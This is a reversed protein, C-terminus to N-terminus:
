RSPSASRVEAAVVTLDLRPKFALDRRIGYTWDIGYLPVLPLDALAKRMVRSLLGARVTPDMERAAQEIAADVEQDAYGTTNEAGFGEPGGPGHLLPEFLGSADGTGHTWSALALPARGDVMRHLIEPWGVPEVTLRFGAALLQRAIEEGVQAGRGSVTLSSALGSPFGAEALLHRAAAPDAARPPLDEAFGHVGRVALQWVPRGEGQLGAEVLRERDLALDLARRVRVDHFPSPRGDPLPRLRCVLFSVTLTPNRVSRFPATPGLGQRFADPPLPSVVAAGERAARALGAEDPVSEATFGKFHPQPGWYREWRTGRVVTRDGRRRSPEFRYPGTGVPHVIEADGVSRPLIATQALKVLLLPRPRDTVLEVTEGDVARALVVARVDADSRSGVATRARVFTRVVDEPGFPTGDHFTVGRRLRFRWRREDPNSWAVALRPYVSLEGDFDVLGEYFNALVSRTVDEQHRQPDLTEPAVAFVLRIREPSPAPSERCSPGFVSLLALTVAATRPRAQTAAKRTPVTEGM